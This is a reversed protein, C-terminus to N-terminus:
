VQYVCRRIVPLLTFWYVYAIGRHYPRASLGKGRLYASLEDCTAKMRCYVIGSSPRGRRRYLTTIFDHVESMQSVSNTATEYRMQLAYWIRIRSSGCYFPIFPCVEYYLNARNFPHIVKLLHEQSM